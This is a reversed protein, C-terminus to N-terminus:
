LTESKTLARELADIHLQRELADLGPAQRELSAMWHDRDDAVDHELVIPRGQTAAIVYRAEGSEGHRWTVGIAHALEGAKRCLKFYGFRSAAPVRPVWVATILEGPTIATQFAGLVFDAIRLRRYRRGDYLVVEGGLAALSAIWDAAPDGHAISGGITGRSRVARYAIGRAIRPLIGRTVDPLLGDEIEAHTIASGIMLGDAQEDFGRLPSLASIDVLTEPQALRLNLMPGLSQGGAILRVDDSASWERVEGLQTPRRYDFACAKM